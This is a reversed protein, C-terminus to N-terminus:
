KANWIIGDASQFVQNKDNVIEFITVSPAISQATGSSSAASGSAPAAAAQMSVSQARVLVARGAWQRAIRRWNERSDETLFVTGATDIVLIRHGLSASSLVALGSPLHVPRGAFVGGAAAGRLRGFAAVSGASAEAPPRYVTTSTAATASGGSGSGGPAPKAGGASLQDQATGAQIQLNADAYSHRQGPQALKKADTTSELAKLTAQQQGQTQPEVSTAQQSNVTDLETQDQAVQVTETAVPPQAEIPLPAPVRPASARAPAGQAFRQLPRSPVPPPPAAVPQAKELQAQELERRAPKAPPAMVQPAARPASEAMEAPAAASQTGAAPPAEQKTVKITTGRNEAQRLYISLSTAAFAAVIATPVWVLRWSKWWANTPNPRFRPAPAAAAGAPLAAAELEVSESDRKMEGLGASQQALSVIQRCRGCVSLHLLVRDREGQGLAQEAFANLMEADPHLEHQITETM